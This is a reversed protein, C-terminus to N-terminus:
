ETTSWSGRPKGLRLKPQAGVGAIICDAIIQQGDALELLLDAGKRHIRAIQSSVLIEVGAASHSAAIIDAIDEPVGRALIRPAVELVVVSCGRERASAALEM